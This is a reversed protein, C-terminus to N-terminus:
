NHVDKAACIAVHRIRRNNESSWPTGFYAVMEEIAEWSSIRLGLEIISDTPFAKGILACRMLEASDSLIALRLQKKPPIRSFIRLAEERWWRISHEIARYGGDLLVYRIIQSVCEMPLADDVNRIFHDM